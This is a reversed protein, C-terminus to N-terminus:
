SVSIPRPNPRRGNVGQERGKFFAGWGKKSAETSVTLDFPPLILSMRNHLNLRDSVWWNLEAITEQNLHVQHNKMRLYRGNKHLFAVPNERPKPEQDEPITTTSGLYRDKGHPEDSGINYSYRKIQM